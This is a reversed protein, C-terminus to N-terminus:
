DMHLEFRVEGPYTKRFLLLFTPKMVSLADKEAKPNPEVDEKLNWKQPYQDVADRLCGRCIQDRLDGVRWRRWCVAIFKSLALDFPFVFLFEELERQM